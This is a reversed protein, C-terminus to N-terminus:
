LVRIQPTEGWVGRQPVTAQRTESGHDPFGVPALREGLGGGFPKNTPLTARKEELRKAFANTSFTM